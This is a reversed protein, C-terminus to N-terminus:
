KSFRTPSYLISTMKRNTFSRNISIIRGQTLVYSISGIEELDLAPVSGPNSIIITNYLYNFFPLLLYKQNIRHHFVSGQVNVILPKLLLFFLLFSRCIFFM